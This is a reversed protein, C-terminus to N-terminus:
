MHQQQQMEEKGLLHGVVGRILPLYPFGAVLQLLM